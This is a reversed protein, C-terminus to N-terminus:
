RRSGTWRQCSWDDGARCGRRYYRQAITTSRPMGEGNAAMWALTACALAERRCQPKLLRLARAYQAAGRRDLEAAIRRDNARIEAERARAEPTGDQFVKQDGLGRDYLDLYGAFACSVGDGADCARGLSRRLPM